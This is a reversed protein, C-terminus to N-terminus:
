YISNYYLTEEDPAVIEDEKDSYNGLDEEILGSM